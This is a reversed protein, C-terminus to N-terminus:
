RLSFAAKVTVQASAVLTSLVFSVETVRLVGLWVSLPQVKVTSGISVRAAPKCPSVVKETAKVDVPPSVAVPVKVTLIPPSVSM